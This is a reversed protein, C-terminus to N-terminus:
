KKILTFVGSEPNGKAYYIGSISAKGSEMAANIEITHTKGPRVLKLTGSIRCVSTMKLSGSQVKQTIGRDKVFTTGSSSIKLVGRM